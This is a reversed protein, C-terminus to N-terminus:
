INVCKETCVISKEIIKKTIEKLKILKARSYEVNGIIIHAEGLLTEELGQLHLLFVQGRLTCGGTIESETLCGEVPLVVFLYFLVRELGEFLGADDGHVLDGGPAVLTQCAVVLAVAESELFGVLLAGLEDCLVATLASEASLEDVDILGLVALLPCEGELAGLFEDVLLVFAGLFGRDVLM